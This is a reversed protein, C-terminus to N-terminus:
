GSDTIRGPVPAPICLVLSACASLVIVKKPAALTPQVHLSISLYDVTHGVLFPRALVTVDASALHVAVCATM